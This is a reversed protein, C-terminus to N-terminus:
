QIINSTIILFVLNVSYIYKDENFYLSSSTNHVIPCIYKVLYFINNLQICM